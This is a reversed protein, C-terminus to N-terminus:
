QLLRDNSKPPKTKAGRRRTTEGVLPATVSQYLGFLHEVRERDSGFPQKRYCRDVIKDLADHAKRLSVPMTLPDYLDALTCDPHASRADLVAQAAKEVSAKAEDTVGQAWVFNNYVLNVSYRYDSKLRGGITRVWAMHMSSTLVGFHYLTADNMCRLLDSPVYEKGLYGMPIFDRRASSVYPVALFSSTPVFEVHCRTPTDALRQTPPSKSALRFARCREVREMCLPLSRLESPSVDRLQLFWREIGNIFEVSGLWRRFFREAGPERRLFESKEEPTFLYNGDDIPKNGSVLAPAHSLPESRNTVAFDTGEILYPSINKAAIVVPVSAGQPYDVIVKGTRDGIGFGVIVVHVHAKGRADSQWEFTRHAFHIKVGRKFLEGWLVGVQEGQSISNTSVFACRTEGGKAYETAKLYWGCVYDLLGYNKVSGACAAMDERQEDTQYKGGVFPPNGLVYSCESAPLVDGWDMRLANGIHVNGMSKLPLRSFAITQLRRRDEQREALVLAIEAIRGAWENLEIGFFQSPSVKLLSPDITLGHKQRESKSALRQLRELCEHELRRLHRYTCVLFNGSGCTPDLFKLSAMKSHFAQLAATRSGCESLERELDDLFLPRIVKLIDDETTYHAGISRRERPEMASQFLSGFIQPSIDAWGFECCRLLADRMKRDLTVFGLRESFLSGNVYPLGAFMAPPMPTRKGAGKTPTDLVEFAQALLAGLDTADERSSKVIDHFAGKEFIDTDDAFLCFLVRMLFVELQHGAYGGDELADHLDCLLTVAKFDASEEEVSEGLAVGGRLFDLAEIHKPLDLTLFDAVPTGANQKLNYVRIREFDSVILSHPLSATQGTRTLDQVYENAQQLAKRFQAENCGRSKHEVICVGPYFLDIFSTTKRVNGVAFEFTAVAEVPLGYVEFLERWFSQKLSEEKQPKLGGEGEWKLAFDAARQLVEARSLTRGAVTSTNTPKRSKTPKPM